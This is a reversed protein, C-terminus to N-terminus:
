YAASSPIITEMTPAHRVELNRGGVVAANVFKTGGKVHTGHSAHIHGFLHLQPQIRQLEKALHPCGLHNFGSAPLDLVGHPPTHTILIDVGTPIKKWREILEDETAYHAFGSLDPCWPSGYITLGNVEFLSDELLTAHAFRFERSQILFDHNGGVCVVHKAPAEAFWCDVDDLTREDEQEFSCFDGCHILVDCEPITLERHKRHTDAVICLSTM